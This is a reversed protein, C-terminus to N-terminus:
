GRSFHSDQVPVVAELVHQLVAAPSGIAEVERILAPPYHSLVPFTEQEYVEWRRLIVEKKADDARNEKLARRQLREIMKDKDRCVLHIVLLVDIHQDMIRAQNLSRPIGDLILLDQQPKYLSLVTQAHVNQTWMKVTVDDPVLEGRSSYERFTRGLDSNIDITRFVEGCSLHYFGPIQGLIKGQTGKGAGPAGFLLITKYRSHAPTTPNTM